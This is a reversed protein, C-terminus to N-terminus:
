AAAPKGAALQATRAQLIADVLSAVERRPADDIFGAVGLTRLYDTLTANGRVEPALTFIVAPLEVHIREHALLLRHLQMLTVGDKLPLDLELVLLDFRMCELQALAVEGDAVEVIAINEAEILTRLVDRVESRQHAILVRWRPGTPLQFVNSTM